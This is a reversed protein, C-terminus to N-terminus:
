ERGFKRALERFPTLLMTPRGRPCTYPMRCHALANVLETMERPALASQRGNVAARCAARAVAEERWKESGRRTGATELDHAIDLLLERCPASQV